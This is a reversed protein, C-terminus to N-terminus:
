AAKRYFNAAEIFRSHEVAPAPAAALPSPNPSPQTPTAPLAGFPHTPLAGTPTADLAAAREAPPVTEPPKPRLAVFGVGLTAIFAAAFPAVLWFPGPRADTRLPQASM